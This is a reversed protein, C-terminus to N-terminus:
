CNINIKYYQSVVKLAETCNSKSHIDFKGTFNKDNTTYNEIIDFVVIPHISPWFQNITPSLSPRRKVTIDTQLM